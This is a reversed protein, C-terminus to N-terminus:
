LFLVSISDHEVLCRSPVMLTLEIWLLPVSTNTSWCVIADQTMPLYKNNNNKNINHHIDIHICIWNLWVQIKNNNSKWEIRLCWTNLKIPLYHHWNSVVNNLIILFCFLAKKRWLNLKYMSPVCQLVIAFVCDHVYNKYSYSYLTTFLSKAILVFEFTHACTVTEM